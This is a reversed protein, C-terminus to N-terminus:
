VNKDGIYVENGKIWCDEITKTDHWDLKEPAIEEVLNYVMDYEVGGMALIFCVKCLVDHWEGPLGTSGRDVFYAVMKPITRIKGYIKLSLEDDNLIVGSFDYKPVQKPSRAIEYVDKDSPNILSESKYIFSEEHDICPFYFRAVDTLCAKDAEPFHNYLELTTGKVKKAQYITRSLPFILRFKNVEDTHSTTPLCICFYDLELIRSKAEEITLGDDIDLVIFDCSHFNNQKRYGKFIFPSWGYNTVLEILEQENSTDSVKPLNPHSSLNALKRKESKTVPSQIKDFISIKM